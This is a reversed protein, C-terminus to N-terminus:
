GGGQYTLPWGGSWDYEPPIAAAEMAALHNQAASDIALAQAIGATMIRRLLGYTLDVSGLETYDLPRWETRLVTEETAGSAAAAGALYQYRIASAVDTHYWRGDVLVGGAETLRDRHAKIRALGAALVQDRPRPTTTYTGDVEETVLYLEGDPRVPDDVVEIGLEALRAQWAAPPYQTGDQATFQSDYPIKQQNNRNRYM